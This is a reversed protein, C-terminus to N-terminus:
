SAMFAKWGATDFYITLAALRGDRATWIEAVDFTKRAGSPSVADYRAIVCARDGDVVTDTVSVTEFMRFFQRLVEAYAAKGRTAVGANGGVFAFDDDLPADWGARAALGRYYSDTLTQTTM